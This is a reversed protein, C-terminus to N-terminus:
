DIKPVFRGEFCTFYGNNTFSFTGGLRVEVKDGRNLRLTTQITLSFLDNDDTKAESYGRSSGNVFFHIITYSNKDQRRATAHFTYLGGKPATFKTGDFNNGINYEIDRWQVSVM